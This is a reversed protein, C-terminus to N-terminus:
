VTVVGILSQGRRKLGREIPEGLRPVAEAGHPDKSVLGVQPCIWGQPMGNLLGEALPTNRAGPM